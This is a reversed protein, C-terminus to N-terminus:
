KLGQLFALLDRFSSMSERLDRYELWSMGPYSGTDARPEVLQFSGSDSVGPIPSFVVAQIWSFVTANVGIGVGLSGVVVAATLPMKLIMRWAHRLDAWFMELLQGTRADRVSEKVQEMGGLEMLAERHATQPDLGHSIKEQELLELYSRLEADLHKEVHDKRILNRWLNFLRRMDLGLKRRSRARYGSLHPEM